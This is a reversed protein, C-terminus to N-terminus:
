AKGLALLSEVALKAHHSPVFIHDHYYAAVVNASIGAHTLAASMAATMGVADLSSHVKCTICKYAGDFELGAQQAADKELILTIGEVEKFMALAVDVLTSTVQHPSLSVFVYEEGSIVPTLNKLLYSLDTIGGM